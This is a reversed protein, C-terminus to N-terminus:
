EVTLSGPKEVVKSSRRGSKYISKVVYLSAANKSNVIQLRM